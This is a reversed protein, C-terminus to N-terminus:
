RATRALRVTRGCGGDTERLTLTTGELRGSLRARRRDAPKAATQAQAEIAQGVVKGYIQWLQATRSGREEGAGDVLGRDVHLEVDLPLNCAGGDSKGKWAGDFATPQPQLGGGPTPAPARGQALVPGVVAVALAAGLLAGRLM